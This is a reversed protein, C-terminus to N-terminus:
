RGFPDKRGGKPINKDKNPKKDKDTNNDQIDAVKDFDTAAKVNSLFADRLNKSDGAATADIVIDQANASSLDANKGSFDFWKDLAFTIAIQQYSGHTVEITTAEKTLAIADDADLAIKLSASSNNSAQWTGLLQVSGGNQKYLQLSIDKYVGEPLTLLAPKPTITNSMLDLVFPGSLKPAATDSSDRRLSIDSLVLQVSDLVVEGSSKGNKDTVKLSKNLLSTGTGQLIIEVTGQKEVPATTGTQVKSSPPNGSWSGCSPSGFVGLCVVLGHLVPRYWAPNRLKPRRM